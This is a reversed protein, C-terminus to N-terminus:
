TLRAYRKFLNVSGTKGDGGGQPLAGRDDKQINADPSHAEAKMSYLAADAASLLIDLTEGDRPYVALGISVSLKPKRDDHALSHCIRRAVLNASAEGTEPLVLAFEDGGFRAATDIDRSCICLTDALRCLAQSGVLHGFHDNIQKLGDLDLFLLAFERGTRESRRIETDLLEILCRYNALGTLSDKAAQQRLHDELKRQKTIDEVIVEYGDPEGENSVERGSLRVKLARLDKRKLDIELPGVNDVDPSHGLLQARKSPDCLIDSAFDAALLEERSSYGLMTVLAQNVDQLKGELSCRCMGYTLNGVLARYHAESHRLKKETQDREERLNNESLARRIVVPLHGVHDMEVCDAAGDTILEAVTEPQMTDTLFILPIQRNRLRLIELAQTKRWPSIPYRALVVDYSQADLREAFQEPTLVVDTMVEFHARKLEEVCHEVKRAESHVFLIRLPRRRSAPGSLVPALEFQKVRGRSTSPM